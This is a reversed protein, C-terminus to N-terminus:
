NYFLPLAKLTEIAPNHYKEDDDEPRESTTANLVDKENAGIHKM